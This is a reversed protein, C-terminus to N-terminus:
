LGLLQELVQRGISKAAAPNNQELLVVVAYPEGAHNPLTGALYWSLPEDPNALAVSQWIPLIDDALLMAAENANEAALAAQPESLVELSLWENEGGVGLAIQPAPIVGGNSLAAAALALQLPSLRLEAAGLAAEQPTIIAAPTTSAAVPMYFLPAEYFRLGTFLGTLRQSDLLLGLEASPGPCGAAIAAAWSDNSSPTEACELTQTPTQFTLAQPPLALAEEALAAVALLFPGLSRGPQYSGLTARNVLPGSEDEVLASWTEDLTNADFTPASAMVLIEGSRANLLVAAGPREGLLNEALTQLELDLSLRIDNGAPPQGYLLHNIWVSGVPNFAEGRLIEDLSAELGAQGYIPHTYGAV